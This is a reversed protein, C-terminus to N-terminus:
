RRIRIEGVGARAERRVVAGRPELCELEDPCGDFERIADLSVMYIDVSGQRYPSVIKKVNSGRVLEMEAQASDAANM